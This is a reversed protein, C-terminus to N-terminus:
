KDEKVAGVCAYTSDGMAEIFRATAAPPVEVLLRGNSESFLLVDDRMAESVPVKGIDLDVGLGGTFAMEAVAVALG